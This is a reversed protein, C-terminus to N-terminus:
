PVNTALFTLPLNRVSLDIEDLYTGGGEIHQRFRTVGGYREVTSEAAHADPVSLVVTYIGDGHAALFDEVSRAVDTGAGPLVSILEIGGAWDLSVRVGLEALEAAQLTYGLEAFLRATEDHRDPAVAFVVHHLTSPPASM